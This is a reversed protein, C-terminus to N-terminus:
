VDIAAAGTALGVAGRDVGIDEDGALGPRHALSISCVTGLRRPPPGDDDTRLAM